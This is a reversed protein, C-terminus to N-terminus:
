PQPMKEAAKLADTFDLFEEETWAFAASDHHGGGGYKEALKSVDVSGDSRLSVIVKKGRRSWVLSIPPMREYLKQGVYSVKVPSNVMLCRYGEFEIEEAHSAVRDVQREVAKLVLAGDRIYQQRKDPDELEGVIQDWIPFERDYLGMVADIEKAGAVEFKWLDITEIAKLLYPPAEGPHFFSWALTAGSHNKDFHTTAFKSLLKESTEHHDILTVSRASELLADLGEEGYTFDICYVDRGHVEHPLQADHHLPIYYAGEGFKKWAAWAGGYGDLCGAHYLVTVEKHNETM